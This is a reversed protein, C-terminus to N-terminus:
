KVYFTHPIRKLNKGAHKFLFAVIVAPLEVFFREDKSVYKPNNDVYKIMSWRIRDLYPCPENNYRREIALQLNNLRNSNVLVIADDDLKLIKKYSIKKLNESM